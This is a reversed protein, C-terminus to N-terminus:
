SDLVGAMLSPLEGKVGRLGKGVEVKLEVFDVKAAAGLALGQLEALVLEVVAGDEM